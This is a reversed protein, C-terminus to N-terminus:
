GCFGILVWLHGIMDTSQWAYKPFCSRLKYDAFDQKLIMSGFLQIKNIIIYRLDWTKWIFFYVM